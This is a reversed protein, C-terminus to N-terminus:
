LREFIVNVAHLRIEILQRLHGIFVGREHIRAVVSRHLEYEFRPPELYAFSGFLHPSAKGTRVYCVFRAGMLHTSFTHSRVISSLLGYSFLISDSLAM